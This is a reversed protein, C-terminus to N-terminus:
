ADGYQKRLVHKLVKGVPNRPIPSVLELQEPIERERYFEDVLMVRDPTARARREVLQRLSDGEIM